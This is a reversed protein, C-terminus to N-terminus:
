GRHEPETVERPPEHGEIVEAERLREEGGSGSIPFENVRPPTRDVPKPKEPERAM